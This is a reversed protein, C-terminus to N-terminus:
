KQHVLDLGYNEKSFKGSLREIKKNICEICGSGGINEKGELHHSAITM